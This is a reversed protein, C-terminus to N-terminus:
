QCRIAWFWGSWCICLIALIVGFGTWSIPLPQFSYLNRKNYNNRWESL